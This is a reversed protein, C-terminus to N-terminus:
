EDSEGQNANKEERKVRREVSKVKRWFRELWRFCTIEALRRDDCFFWPVAYDQQYAIWSRYLTKVNEERTKKGHQVVSSMVGAMTGEVIVCAAGHCERGEIDGTRNIEALNTLEREFRDRREAFGLITGICDEVSKREVSVRPLSPSPNQSANPRHGDITYDGMGVGLYSWQPRVLIPRNGKDADSTLGAFPFPQKEQSDMLVAFPCPMPGEKSRPDYAPPINPNPLPANSM